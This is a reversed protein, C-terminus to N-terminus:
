GSRWWPFGLAIKRHKGIELGLLQKRAWEYLKTFHKQLKYIDYDGEVVWLFLTM